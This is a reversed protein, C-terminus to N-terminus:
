IIWPMQVEVKLFVAQISIKNKARNELTEPFVKTNM